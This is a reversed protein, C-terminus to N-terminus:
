PSNKARALAGFDGILSDKHIRIFQKTMRARVNLCLVYPFPRLNPLEADNQRTRPNTCAAVNAGVTKNLVVNNNAVVNGYFTPDLQPVTKNQFVSNTDARVHCKGIISEGPSLIVIPYRFFGDHFFARRNSSISRYQRSDGYAFVGHDTSAAHYCM